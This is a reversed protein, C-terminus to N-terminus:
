KTIIELMYIQHSQMKLGIKAKGNKVSTVLRRESNMSSTLYVDAEDIGYDRLAKLLFGTTITKNTVNSLFIAVNGDRNKYAATVINDVTWEGMLASKGTTAQSSSSYNPQEYEYTSSSGNVDPADLMEGYIMYNKGYTTRALALRNVYDVMDFNIRSASPLTNTPFYEYNFENIGGNLATYAAIYYYSEGLEDLPVLYGDNRIAGFEHYVRDFMPIKIAINEEVMGRIEDTEMWGLPGGNARAQYFDIYQLTRETIMETGVSYFGNTEALDSANQLQKYFGPLININHGHNHSSDFCEIPHVATAFVDFYLADVQYTDYYGQETINRNELWSESIPCQYYFPTSNVYFALKDQKYNTIANDLFSKLPSITNFEFVSYADQYERSLDFYNKNQYIAVNLIQDTIRSKIADYTPIMDVWTAVDPRFGFINLGTKEFLTKNIDSRNEARGVDTVWKQDKAWTKYRSAAEEWKGQNLNALIIDYGFNVETKSLDDIHHYISMRCRDDGIGTFTFNKIYDNKDNTMWYFGGLNESYYSGFQMTMGWGSPYTSMSVPYGLASSKGIGLGYIDNFNKTPNVFKFGTAFPAAYIDKTRDGLTDINEVIPYEVDIISDSDKYSLNSLSVSFKVEDSNKSLSITCTAKADCEFRYEYEITKAELTDEIIKSSYSVPEVSSKNKDVFSIRIPAADVVNKVLYLKSEKNAFEQISGDQNLIIRVKENELTTSRANVELSLDDKGGIEISSTREKKSDDYYSSTKVFEDDKSSQSCGNPLVMLMSAFLVGLVKKKM